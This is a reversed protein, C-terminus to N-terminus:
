AAAKKPWLQEFAWVGVAGADAQHDDAVKWNMTMMAAHVMDDKKAFKSGTLTIKAQEVPCARVPLGEQHAYLQVITCLGWLLTLTEMTTALDGSKRPLIPREYALADFEHEGRMGHLFEYLHDFRAGQDDGIAPPLRETGFRPHVGRELLAWGVNSSLDLALLKPM